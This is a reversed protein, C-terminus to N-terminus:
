LDEPLAPLTFRFTTGATSETDLWIRGGHYEVIKRAMALGIGTGSYVDKPHLRQFIMFIREAYDPEIGIGNDIVAFEWMDADRRAQVRISPREDGRFKLANGILNQFVGALLAVEGRVSPLPGEVVVEAGTEEIAATLSTLALGVVEEVDVTEQETPMRGVRSFALLDNILQQMRKAGDVAFEIYQDGREDLQGKYRKELLQCFSAVKRLPEQLDHSAVYAFQELEANSRQLENAQVDLRANASIIQELESVIRRRMTEVDDTLELVDRPGAGEIRHEFDGRATRRVRRGLRRLPQSVIRRLGLVVGALGLAVLVAIAIFAATLFNAASTLRQKGVDRVHEVERQEVALAARVGDFLRGLDAGPRSHANPGGARVAAITPMAYLDHWESARLEIVAVDRRVQAHEASTTVSALDRIARAEDRVGNRYPALFAEEGSLAYGRVGTEQNILANSLSLSDIVAPGNRDVVLDRADNLRIIAAIGLGVGIATVVAMVVAAWAFWQGVTLRSV